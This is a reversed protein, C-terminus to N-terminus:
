SGVSVDIDQLRKHERTLRAMVMALLVENIATAGLWHVVQLCTKSVSRKVSLSHQPAFHGCVAVHVTTLLLAIDGAGCYWDRHYGLFILRQDVSKISHRKGLGKVMVWGVSSSAKCRHSYSTM